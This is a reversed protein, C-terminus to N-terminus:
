IYLIEETEVENAVNSDHNIGRKLYRQGTHFRSRRSVIIM